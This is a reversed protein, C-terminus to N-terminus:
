LVLLGIFRKNKRMRHIFFAMRVVIKSYQPFDIKEFFGWESM